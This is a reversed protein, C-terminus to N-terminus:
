IVIELDDLGDAFVFNEKYNLEESELSLCFEGYYDFEFEYGSKLDLQSVIDIKKSDGEITLKINAKNSMDDVSVQNEFDVWITVKHM